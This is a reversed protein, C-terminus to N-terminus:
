EGFDKMNKTSLKHVKAMVDVIQGSKMSDDYPVERPSSSSLQKELEHVIDSKTASIMLGEEDFLRLSSRMDYKLLEEM